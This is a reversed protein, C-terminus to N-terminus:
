VGHMDWTKYSLCELLAKEAGSFLPAARRVPVNVPPSAKPSYVYAGCLSTETLSPGCIRRHDWLIIINYYLIYSPPGMLNYYYLIYSPPGM